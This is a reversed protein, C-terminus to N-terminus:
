LHSTMKEIRGFAADMSRCIREVREMSSTRVKDASSDTTPIITLRSFDKEVNIKGLVRHPPKIAAPESLPLSDAYLAFSPDSEDFDVNIITDKLDSSEDVEQHVSPMPVLTPREDKCEESAFCPGVSNSSKGSLVATDVAPGVPLELLSFVQPQNTPWPLIRTDWPSNNIDLTSFDIPNDPMIALGIHQGNSQQSQLKQSVECPNVDKPATPQSSETHGSNAQEPMPASLTALGGTSMEDVFTSFAPSSLLMRTLNTLKANEDMLARNQEKLISMENAKTALEGELQGIYETFQNAIFLHSLCMCNGKRRSRFARASVKNRLQRREKSSLKKGEESALLREDEDMDEEDKRTRTIHSLGGNAHPTAIGDDNSSTSSHRMSNLLQSIKEDAIPDNPRLAAPKQSRPPHQHPNAEQQKSKRQSAEAQAKALAQQQHMGPWLRGLNSPASPVSSKESRTMKEEQGGVAAPDVFASASSSQQAPFFFAPLDGQPDTEFDMKMEPSTSGFDFDNNSDMGFFDDNSLSFGTRNPVFQINNAENIAFTNALAGVPLGTQQQFDNYQHSPGRYIQESNSRSSSPLPSNTDFFSSSQQSKSQSRSSSPSLSPTPYLQDYNIFSDLELPELPDLCTTQPNPTPPSTSSTTSM